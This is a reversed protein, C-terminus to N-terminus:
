RSYNGLLAVIDGAAVVFAAAALELETQPGSDVDSQLIEHVAVTAASIRETAASEVVAAVTRGATATEGASRKHRPLVFVRRTTVSILCDVTTHSQREQHFSYHPSVATGGGDVLVLVREGDVDNPAPSRSDVDYDTSM